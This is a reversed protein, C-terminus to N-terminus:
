VVAVGHRQHAAWDKTPASTLITIIRLTSIKLAITSSTKSPGRSREMSRLYVKKDPNERAYELAVMIGAPGSGIICLDIDLQNDNIYTSKIM